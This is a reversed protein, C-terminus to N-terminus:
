KEEWEVTVPIPNDNRIYTYAHAPKHERKPPLITHRKGGLYLVCVILLVSLQGLKLNSFNADAKRFFYIKM